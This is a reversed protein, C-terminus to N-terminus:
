MVTLSAEDVIEEGTNALPGEQHWFGRVGNRISGEFMLQVPSRNGETSVRHNNHSHRFFQLETNIDALFLYCGLWKHRDLARDYYHDRQLVIFVDYWHELVLRVVEPWLREIRTNHPSVGWLYSGRGIGRRDTIWIAVRVNEGGRDGRLRSPIGYEDVGELFIELVTDARNNSSARICTVLRTFGDVFAHVVIGFLVLEHQGDHHWVSNPGAVSYVNRTPLSDDDLLNRIPRLQRSFHRVLDRPLFHGLAVLQGHLYVAGVKPHNRRLEIIIATLEAESITSFRVTPEGPARIGYEVIRRRVTRATIPPRLPDTTLMKAIQEPEMHHQDVAQRLTAPDIELRPRGGQSTPVVRTLPRLFATVTSDNAADIAFSLDLRVRNVSRQLEEAQFVTLHRGQVISIQDLIAGLRRHYYRLRYRDGDSSSLSEVAKLLTSTWRAGLRVLDQPDDAGVDM